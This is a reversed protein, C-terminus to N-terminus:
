WPSFFEVLVPGPFSLVEKGFSTDSIFVARDPFLLSLRLPSRCRGCVAREDGWRATPIRNKAGCRPCRIVPDGTM